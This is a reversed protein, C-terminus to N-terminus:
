KFGNYVVTNAITIMTMLFTNLFAGTYVNGTKKYLSKTFLTAVILTPILAFLLISTLAQTPWLATGTIFLKGYQLILFLVLGGVNVICGILYGIWGKMFETNANVTIATVFYYL